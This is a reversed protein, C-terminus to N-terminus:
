CTSTDYNLRNLLFMFGILMLWKLIFWVTYLTVIIQTSKLDGFIAHTIRWPDVGFHLFRDWEAFAADWPFPSVIGIMSKFSTYSSLLIPWALVPLTVAAINYPNLFHTRFIKLLRTLPQKERWIVACWFVYILPGFMSGAILIKITAELPQTYLGLRFLHELNMVRSFTFVILAHLLIVGFYPFYLWLTSPASVNVGQKDNSQIEAPEIVSDTM